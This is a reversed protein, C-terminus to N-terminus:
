SKSERNGEPMAILINLAYPKGCCDQYQIAKLGNSRAREMAMGEEATEPLLYISISEDEKFATEVKMGSNEKTLRELYLDM